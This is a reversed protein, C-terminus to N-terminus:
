DAPAAGTDALMWPHGDPDYFTVLCAEGMERVPGDFRVGLAEMRAKGVEINKCSWTPTTGGPPQPPHEVQGLGITVTENPTSLFAYGTEASEFIVACGLVDAYWQKSREIDSVALDINLGGDFSFEDSMDTM